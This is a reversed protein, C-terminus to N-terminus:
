EKKKIAAGVAGDRFQVEIRQEPRLQQVSTLTLGQEDRVMTFGRGLTKSPGQGTIERVLAETSMSADHLARRADATVATIARDSQGRINAASTAAREATVRLTAVSGTRAERLSARADGKISEIVGPLAQHADAIQKRAQTEIAAFATRSEDAALSVAKLAGVRVTGFSADIKRHATSLQLRAADKVNANAGEATLSCGQSIQKAKAVVSQFFGKVEETRQRIVKEIGLIVKSPTDFRTHAVEDLVTSDREHGIGTLVPLPAECICRALEYDNLWALDNVAGGGRIIVAADPLNCGCDDLAKLFSARVSAAAGEGQFRPHVYVFHCIGAAELRSAEAQFDGLGAAGQPALVLVFNFNWIPALEKNLDLLGERKLRDRIQRKHAELDGLTYDPDIAEVQLSLGFKPVFVPKLKLLLKIGPGIKAGTAREFEPLIREATSAWITAMSKATVEGDITRETVELYVHGSKIRADVVDVMTWVGARYAEAVAKAVGSLLQSLKVGKPKTVELETGNSPVDPMLAVPAVHGAPLWQRFLTLDAGAPAYWARQEPDWRAGLAKVLEKDRFNATLYTSEGAMCKNRTDLPNVSALEGSGTTQRCM